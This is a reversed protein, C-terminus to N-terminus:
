MVYRHICWPDKVMSLQVCKVELLGVVGRAQINAWGVDDM